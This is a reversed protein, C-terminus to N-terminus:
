ADPLPEGRRGLVKLVTAGLRNAARRRIAAPQSTLEEGRSVRGSQLVAFFDVHDAAAVPPQGARPVSAPPDTLGIAGMWVLKEFAAAIAM